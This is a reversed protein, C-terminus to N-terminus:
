HSGNNQGGEGREQCSSKEVYGNREVSENMYHPQGTIVMLATNIKRSRVGSPTRWRGTICGGNHLGDEHGNPRNAFRGSQDLADAAASAGVPSIPNISVHIDNGVPEASM